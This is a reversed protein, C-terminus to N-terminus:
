GLSIIDFVYAFLGLFEQFTKQTRTTNALRSIAADWSADAFRHLSKPVLSSPDPIGSDRNAFSSLPPHLPALFTMSKLAAGTEAGVERSAVGRRSVRDALGSL